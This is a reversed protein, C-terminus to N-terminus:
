NQPVILAVSYGEHILSCCTELLAVVMNLNKGAQGSEKGERKRLASGRFIM